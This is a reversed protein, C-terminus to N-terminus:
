VGSVYAAVLPAGLFPEEGVLTEPSRGGYPSRVLDVGPGLVQWTM